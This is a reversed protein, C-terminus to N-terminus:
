GLWGGYAADINLAINPAQMKAIAYGIGEEYAPAAEACLSVGMNTVLNGLSDPELIIAFSLDKAAKVKQAYPEIFKTKYLGLGNQDVQFEGDSESASRDRQSPRPYSPSM